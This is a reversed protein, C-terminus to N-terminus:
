CGIVLFVFLFISLKYYKAYCLFYQAMLTVLCFKCWKCASCYGATMQAILSTVKLFYSPLFLYCCVLTTKTFSSSTFCNYNTIEPSKRNGRRKWSWSTQGGGGWWKLVNLFRLCLRLVICWLNCPMLRTPILPLIDALAFLAAGRSWWAGNLQLLFWLLKNAM